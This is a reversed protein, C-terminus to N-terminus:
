CIDKQKNLKRDDIQSEIQGKLKQCIKRAM